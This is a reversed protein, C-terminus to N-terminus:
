LRNEYTAILRALLACFPAALPAFLDLQGEGMFDEINRHINLVGMRGGINPDIMEYGPYAPLPLSVMGSIGRQKAQKFYARVSDVLSPAFDGQEAKMAVHDTTAFGSADGTVFTWPAGPLVASRGWDRPNNSPTHPVPLALPHLTSDVKETDDSSVSFVPMLELYGKYRRLDGTKDWLHMTGEIAQLETASINNDVTRFMMINVGYRAGSPEPEHFKRALDLLTALVTRIAQEVESKDLPMTLALVAAQGAEELREEFAGLYGSPPLSHLRNVMAKLRDTEKLMESRGRRTDRSQAWVTGSFSIGVAFVSLWFETSERSTWLHYGAAEIQKDYISGLFGALVGLASTVGGFFPFGFIPEAINAIKESLRAFTQGLWKRAVLFWNNNM